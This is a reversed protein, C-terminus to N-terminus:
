VATFGTRDLSELSITKNSNSQKTTVHTANLTASASFLTMFSLTLLMKKFNITM